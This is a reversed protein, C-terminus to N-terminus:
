RRRLHMNPRIICEGGSTGRTLYIGQENTVACRHWWPGYVMDPYGGNSGGTPSTYRLGFSNSKGSYEHGGVILIEPIHRGRAYEPDTRIGWKQPFAIATGFIGENGAAVVFLVRGTEALRRMNEYYKDWFRDSQGDKRIGFSMNVVAFINPKQRISNLIRGLGLVVSGDTFWPVLTISPLVPYVGTDTGAILSAM